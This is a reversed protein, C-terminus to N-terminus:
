MRCFYNGHTLSVLDSWISYVNFCLSQMAQQMTIPSCTLLQGYHTEKIHATSNLEDAIIIRTLLVPLCGKLMMVCVSSFTIYGGAVKGGQWDAVRVEPRDRAKPSFVGVEALTGCSCQTTPFICVETQCREMRGRAWENGLVIGSMQSPQCFAQPQVASMLHVEVGKHGRLKYASCHAMVGM